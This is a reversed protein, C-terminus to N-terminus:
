RSYVVALIEAEIKEMEKVGENCLWYLARHVEPSEPLAETAAFERCLVLAARAAYRREGIDTIDTLAKIARDRDTM